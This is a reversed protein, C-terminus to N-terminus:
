LAAGRMLRSDGGLTLGFGFCKTELGRASADPSWLRLERLDTADEDESREDEGDYRYGGPRM